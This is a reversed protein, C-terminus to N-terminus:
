PAKNLTIDDIVLAYETNGDDYTASPTNYYIRYLGPTFNSSIEAYADKVLDPLFNADERGSLVVDVWEEDQKIQIKLVSDTLAMITEYKNQNWAAIKFSIGAAEEYSTLDFEAWSEQASKKTSLVLMCGSDKHPDYNSSNTQARLVNISMTEGDGNEFEIATQAYGTRATTGFDIKKVVNSAAVIVTVEYTDTAEGFTLTVTITVETAEAPTTVKGDAAIIEPKDTAWAVQVMKDDIPAEAFFKLDGTVEMGAPFVLALYKKALAVTEEDNLATFVVSEPVLVYRWKDDDHHGMVVLLASDIKRGVQPMDFQSLTEPVNNYYIYLKGEASETEDDAAAIYYNNYRGAVALKGSVKYIKGINTLDTAPIACLEAVTKEVAKSAHDYGEGPTTVDVTIIALQQLGKHADRKGIVDVVDGYKAGGYSSGYLLIAGTSDEIVIGDKLVGTVTGQVHVVPKNAPDMALAEAITSVEHVPALFTLEVTETVERLTVTATLKVTTTADPRNYAGTESLVAPKDSEWAITLGEDLASTTPLKVNKYVAYNEPFTTNLNDIAAAVKQEDTLEPAEVEVVTGPIVSVRWGGSYSYLVADLEVYKDLKANFDALGQPHGGYYISISKGSALDDLYSNTYQGETKQVAKGTLRVFTGPLHIDQGMAEVEAANKAPGLDGYVYGAAPADELVTIRPTDGAIQQCNYHNKRAGSVSVKAGPKVREPHDSKARYIFFSGTDDKFFALVGSSDEWSHTVIGEGQVDQNLEAEFLEAVTLARPAPAIYIPFERTKSGDKGEITLTAVLTAEGQESGEPRTVRLMTKGDGTKEVTLYESGKSISWAVKVTIRNGDADQVIVTDQLQEDQKLNNADGLFVIKGQAEELYGMTPDEETPVCSCGVVVFAMLAFLLVLGLRRLKKM